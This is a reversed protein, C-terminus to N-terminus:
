RGCLKTFDQYMSSLELLRSIFYRTNRKGTRLQVSRIETRKVWKTVTVVVISRGIALSAMACMVANASVLGCVISPSVQSQSCIDRFCM